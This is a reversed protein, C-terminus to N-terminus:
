HMTPASKTNPHAVLLESECSEGHSPSPPLRWRGRWPINQAEGRLGCGFPMKDRSEWIPTGFNGFNLSGCSQSGMITHSSKQNLHLRYCLQLGWQSSELSMDCAMLVYPFQPSKSKRSKKQGYNTNWINFHTMCAWKLYRCKLLKEITYLVGWDMPNQGRCDNELCKFTWWSELKWPRGQFHSPENGWV